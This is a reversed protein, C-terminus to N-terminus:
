KGEKAGLLWVDATGDLIHPIYYAGVRQAHIAELWARLRDNEAELAVINSCCQSITGHQCVPCM